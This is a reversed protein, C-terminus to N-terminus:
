RPPNCRGHRWSGPGYARARCVFRDWCDCRGGLNHIQKGGGTIRQGKVAHVVEDTRILNDTHSWEGDFRPHAWGRAIGVSQDDDARVVVRTPRQFEVIPPQRQPERRILAPLEILVAHHQLRSLPIM